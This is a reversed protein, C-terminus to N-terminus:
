DTAPTRWLPPDHQEPRSNILLQRLARRELGNLNTAETIRRFMTHTVRRSRADAEFQDLQPLVAEADVKVPSQDKLWTTMDRKYDIESFGCVERSHAEVKDSAATTMIAHALSNRSVAEDLDVDHVRPGEDTLAVPLGAGRVECAGRVVRATAALM